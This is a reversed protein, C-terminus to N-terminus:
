YCPRAFNLCLDVCSAGCIRCAVGGDSPTAVTQRPGDDLLPVLARMAWRIHPIRATDREKPRSNLGGDAIIRNQAPKTPLKQFQPFEFGSVIVVPHAINEIIHAFPPIRRIVSNRRGVHHVGRLFDHVTRPKQAQACPAPCLAIAGKINL